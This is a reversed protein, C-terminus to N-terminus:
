WHVKIQVIRVNIKYYRNGQRGLFFFSDIKIQM